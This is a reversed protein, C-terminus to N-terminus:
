RATAPNDGVLPEEAFAMYIYSGGSANIPTWSNRAKFGNSLIDFYAPVTTEEAVNRNADLFYTGGNYGIRRNDIMKWNDTTDTRKVMVFAPKMGTYCFVGDNSGNGVYSGFKSFGQKEAFCYAIFTGGSANQDGYTKVNFLTNTWTSQISLRSDTSSLAGTTNLNLEKQDGWITSQVSWNTASDRRKFIIMKPTSGLGHGVTADSGTGTYSVISFGSTTNASVTSSISGDTNAATTNAGLWNWSCMNDTGQLGENIGSGGTTNLTFGTPTWTVDNAGWSAEANTNDSSIYKEDGRIADILYNNYGQTRSKFWTFDPQFGVAVPNDGNGSNGTYLKTNFYDSPKKITTYAM